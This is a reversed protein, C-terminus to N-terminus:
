FIFRFNVLGSFFDTLMLLHVLLEKVKRCHLPLPVNWMKIWAFEAEFSAIIPLRAKIGSLCAYLMVERVQLPRWLRQSTVLLSCMLWICQPEPDSLSHSLSLPLTHEAPSMVELPCGVQSRSSAPLLKGHCHPPPPPPSVRLPHFQQSLAM